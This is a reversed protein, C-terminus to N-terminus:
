RPPYRLRRRGRFPSTRFSRIGTGDLGNEAFDSRLERLRPIFGCSSRCDRKILSQCFAEGDDDDDFSSSMIAVSEAGSLDSLHVLGESEFGFVVM